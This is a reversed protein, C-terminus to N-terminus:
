HNEPQIRAHHYLHPLLYFRLFFQRTILLFAPVLNFDSRVVYYLLHFRFRSLPLHLLIKLSSPAYFIALVLSSGTTWTLSMHSNIPVCPFLLAKSIGLLVNEIKYTFTSVLLYFLFLLSPVIMISSQARTYLTKPFLPRISTSLHIKRLCIFCARVSTGALCSNRYVTAM